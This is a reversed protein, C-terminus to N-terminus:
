FSCSTEQQVEKLHMSKLRHNAKEALELQEDNIKKAEEVGFLEGIFQLKQDRDSDSALAKLHEIPEMLLQNVISATHKTLVKQERETLNPMKNFISELTSQQIAVGKNKIAKIAPVVSLSSLWENFIIVEAEIMRRIKVAARKREALNADVIGQLDDIDYLFVNELASVSHEVDRPVAIDIIFLPRNGRKAMVNRIMEQQIIPTLASTSSIVIDTELLNRSLKQMSQAQGGFQLALKEATEFTRNIVTINKTGHSQLNKLALEGMEGAGIISVQKEGLHGFIKKALEVAAYSISVAHSAINTTRHAKKSFTIAQKFLRNFIPGTTQITQALLFSDRVQGLIQTEGLVMSDMGASVQMLHEIMEDNQYTFLHNEFVKKPLDFWHALFDEIAHLGSKQEDIVAYIETRNCTSLIINEIIHPNQQLSQMARPLDQELFSLQERIKVSTTRYNVGVVIIEM